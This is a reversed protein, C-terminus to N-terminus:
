RAHHLVYAAVSPWADSCEEELVHSADHRAGTAIRGNWSEAMLECTRRGIGARAVLRSAPPRETFWRQRGNEPDLDRRLLDTWEDTDAVAAAAAPPAHAM